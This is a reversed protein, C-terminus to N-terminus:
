LVADFDREAAASAAAAPHALQSHTGDPSTITNKASPAPLQSCGAILCGLALCTLIPYMAPDRHNRDARAFM